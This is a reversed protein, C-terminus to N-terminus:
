PVLFNFHIVHCSWVGKLSLKDNTPQFKRHEVQVGFQFDGM